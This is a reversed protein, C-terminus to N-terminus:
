RRTFSAVSALWKGLSGWWNAQPQVDGPRDAEFLRNAVAIVTDLPVAMKAPGHQMAEITRGYDDRDIANGLAWVHAIALCAIFERLDAFHAILADWVILVNPLDYEYAFLVRFWKLAYYLPSIGLDTLIAAKEPLYRNLRRGFADMEEMRGASFDLFMEALHGQTVLAGLMSFALAEYLDQDGECFNRHPRDFYHDLVVFYLVGALENLGQLYGCPSGMAFVWLLRELRRMYEQFLGRADGLGDPPVPFFYIVSITRVVDIHILGMLRDPEFSDVPRNPSIEMQHWDRLGHAHISAFYQERLSTFLANSDIQMLRIWESFRDRCNSSSETPGISQPLPAQEPDRVLTESPFAMDRNFHGLHRVTTISNLVITWACVTLNQM